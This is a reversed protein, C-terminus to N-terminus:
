RAVAGRTAPRAADMALEWRRYADESGILDALELGAEYLERLAEVAAGADYQPVFSIVDGMCKPCDDCPGTLVHGCEVCRWVKVDKERVWWQGDYWHRILSM